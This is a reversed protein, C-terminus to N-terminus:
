AYAEFEYIRAVSDSVSIRIWRATINVTHNTISATNGTVTAATTWVGGGTSTELTFNATNYASSEGGAGAHKVTLKRIATNAGLDVELTKVGAAGSCWKDSNGGSVSGNVAKDGTENANCPPSTKTTHGLALNTGTSGGKGCTTLGATYPCVVSVFGGKNAVPTSLSDASTVVRTERLLATGTGDRVTEVLWQGGGLFSLPATFTKAALASIGGIFWRDGARRALYAERGPAGGLLRTEDWATPLQNLITLADPRSTYSEPNDALHQWGSEFVVSTGLEHGNTTDRNGVSFTVPTFDMSSVANRTFPMITNFVAKNQKQEAGFVAESTMVHPWTRQTGRTMETGHFNVMLKRAATEAFITDYWKLAAQNWEFVYDIKLGVVGWSQVLPLWQQRQAATALQDSNFWLIVGVGRDKAYQVVSPVWSSNWGEDILVASWGNRQAFDIYQKQRNADSPSSPETLWSWAVTGPKVWSTDAIKSPPALDDVIRSTTVTALDGVAAVRWPTALPGTAVIESDELGVTYTGSGAGHRLFSATYRGDLDTEALSVYSGNVAFLAPYAYDRAAAGGATTSTWAGQYDSALDNLWASSGTPVSFASAERQVRVTGTAPLVYRYAAGEASVRVVVDMRAGGAGTFSLTSQSFTVNRSRQKGTTMTYAQNVTTDARTGFTLGKTLDATSTVLGIPAPSLVAAGNLAVGFTLTGNDALTVSASVPGGSPGAITWTTAALAPGAPAVVIASLLLAAAGSRLTSGPRM